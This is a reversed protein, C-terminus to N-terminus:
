ESLKCHGFGAPCDHGIEPKLAAKYFQNKTM